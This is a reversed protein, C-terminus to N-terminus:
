GKSASGAALDELLQLQEDATLSEVQSLVDQYVTM